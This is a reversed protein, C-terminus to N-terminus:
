RVVVRLESAVAGLVAEGSADGSKARVVGQRSPVGDVEFLGVGRPSPGPASGGAVELTVDAPVRNGAGDVVEIWVTRAPELVYDRQSAWQAPPVHLSACGPASISLHASAGYVHPLTFRGESDCLTPEPFWGGALQVHAGALPEGNTGLVRGALVRPAPLAVRVEREEYASLQVREEWLVQHWRDRVALTFEGAGFDSWTAVGDAPLEYFHTRDGPVPGGGFDHESWMGGGAVPGRVAAFAGYFEAVDGDSASFNMGVQLGAPPPADQAPVVVLRLQNTPALTVLWPDPLPDPIAHRATACGPAGVLVSRVAHPVALTVLGRADAPESVRQPTAAVRANPRPTANRDCVRLRLVRSRVDVVLDGVDHSSRLPRDVKHELLTTSGFGNGERVEVTAGAVDDDDFPVRFPAGDQVDLRVVRRGGNDRHFTVQLNFQAAVAFSTNAIAKGYAALDGAAAAPAADKRAVVRGTIAPATSLDLLLQLAPTVAHFEPTKSGAVADVRRLSLPATITVTEGPALGFATFEGGADTTVRMRSDSWEISRLAARAAACWLSSPDRFGTISLSQPQAPARGDVRVIGALSRAGALVATHTRADAARESQHPAHGDAAVVIVTHAPMAFEAEGGPATTAALHSPTAAGERWDPDCAFVRAGAVARGAADLVRVRVSPAADPVPTRVADAVTAPGEQAVAAHPRETADSEPMPQATSSGAHTATLSPALPAAADWPWVATIGVVALVGAAALALKLMAATAATGSVLVGGGTVRTGHALVASRMAALSAAPLARAVVASSMGAPLLRRLLHLGRHLRMRTTGPRLRLGHAIQAPTEGHLLFREVVPRLTGPMRGIAQQVRADDDRAAAVAAPDAHTATLQEIDNSSPRTRTLTRVQNVLIGLLWPLVRQEPDWRMRSEIAVVFTAQVADEALHRDRALHAAVRWIEPATRDFVEALARMDGHRRYRAFLRDERSRLM